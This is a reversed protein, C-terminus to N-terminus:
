HHFISTIATSGGGTIIYDGSGHPNGTTLSPRNTLQGTKVMFNKWKEQAWCPRCLGRTTNEYEKGPQKNHYYVNNLVKITDKGDKNSETESEVITKWDHPYVTPKSLMVPRIANRPTIIRIHEFGFSGDWSKNKSHCFWIVAMATQFLLRGQTTALQITMKGSFIEVPRVLRHEKSFGHLNQISMPYGIHPSCIKIIM